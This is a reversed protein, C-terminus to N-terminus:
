PVYIKQFLVQFRKTYMFTFEKKESVPLKCNNVHGITLTNILINLITQFAIFLEM